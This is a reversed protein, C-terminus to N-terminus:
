HHKKNQKYSNNSNTFNSYSQVSFKGSIKSEFEPPSTKVLPQYAVTEGMLLNKTSDDKVIEEEVIVQIMAFLPDNVKFTIGNLSIGACSTSSIHNVIIVPTLISGDKVFLTDGNDIGDTNDFKVYVNQSSIFSVTGSILTDRQVQAFSNVSLIMFLIYLIKKM